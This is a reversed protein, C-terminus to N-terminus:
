LKIKETRIEYLVSPESQFHNIRAALKLNLILILKHIIVDGYYLFPVLIQCLNCSYMEPWNM